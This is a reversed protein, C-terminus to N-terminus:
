RKRGKNGSIETAKNLINNVQTEFEKMNNQATNNEFIGLHVKDILKQVDQKQQEIVEIIDTPLKLYNNM